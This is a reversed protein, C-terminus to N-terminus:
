KYWSHLLISMGKITYGCNSDSHISRKRSGQAGRNLFKMKTTLLGQINMKPPPLQVMEHAMSILAASCVIEKLDTIIDDSTCKDKALSRKGLTRENLNQYV